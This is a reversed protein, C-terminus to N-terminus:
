SCDPPRRRFRGSGAEDTGRDTSISGAFLLRTAGPVWNVSCSASPKSDVELYDSDAELNILEVRFGALILVESAGSALDSFYWSRLTPVV